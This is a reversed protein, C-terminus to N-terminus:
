QAGPSTAVIIHQFPTQWTSSLASFQNSLILGSNELNNAVGFNRPSDEIKFTTIVTLSDNQDRRGIAGTYSSARYENPVMITQKTHNTNLDVDFWKTRTTLKTNADEHPYIRLVINQEQSDIEIAPSQKTVTLNWSAYIRAPDISLLILKPTNANLKPTYKRSIEDSIELLQKSTLTIRKTAIHSKASVIPSYKRNIEEAIEFIEKPELQGKACIKSTSVTM